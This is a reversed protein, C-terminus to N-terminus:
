QMNNLSWQWPDALPVMAECIGTRLHTACRIHASSQSKGQRPEAIHHPAGDAWRIRTHTQSADQPAAQPSLLPEEQNSFAQTASLVAPCSSVPPRSPEAHRDSVHPFSTEASHTSDLKLLESHLHQGQANTCVHRHVRWGLLHLTFWECKPFVDKHHQPAQQHM